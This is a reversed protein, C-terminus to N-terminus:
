NDIELGRAKAAPKALCPRALSQMTVPVVVPLPHQCPSQYIPLSFHPFLLFKHYEQSARLLSNYKENTELSTVVRWEESAISTKNKRMQRTSQLIIPLTHKYINRLSSFPKWPSKIALSRLHLQNRPKSM